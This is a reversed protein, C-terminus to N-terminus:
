KKIRFHRSKNKNKFGSFSFVFDFCIYYKKNIMTREYWIDKTIDHFYNYTIIEKKLPLEFNVGFYLNKNKKLYFTYGCGINLIPDIKRYSKTSYTRVLEVMYINLTSDYYFTLVCDFLYKLFYYNFNLGTKFSLNKIFINKYTFYFPIELYQFSEHYFPNLLTDNIYQDKFNFNRYGFVLGSEFYKNPKLFYQSIIGIKFDNYYRVLSDPLKFYELIGSKINPQFFIKIESLKIDKFVSTSDQSYSNSASLILIFFALITVKFKM